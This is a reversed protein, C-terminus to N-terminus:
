RAAHSYLVPPAFTLTPVAKALAADVAKFFARQRTLPVAYDFAFLHGNCAAAAEKTALATMMRAAVELAPSAPRWVRVTDGVVGGGSGVGGGGGGVGGVGSGSDSSGGSADDGNKSASAYFTCQIHKKKNFAAVRNLFAEEAAAGDFM